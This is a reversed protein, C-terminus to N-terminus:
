EVGIVGTFPDFKCAPKWGVGASRIQAPVFLPSAGALAHTRPPIGARAQLHAIHLDNSWGCSVGCRSPRPGGGFHRSVSAKASRVHNSEYGPVGHAHEWKEGAQAAGAALVLGAALGILKKM